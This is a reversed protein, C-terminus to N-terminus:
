NGYPVRLITGPAIDFPDAIEPNIEMIEWWYKAGIGFTESLNSLSDGEKWTYSIYNTSVSDPFRRFVSIIYDGTYKHETQALPGTYYRSVREIM